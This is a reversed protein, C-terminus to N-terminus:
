EPLKWIKVTADGSATAILKEKPHFAVATITRLHAKRMLLKAGTNADWLVLEGPKKVEGGGSALKSGDPSFALGNVWATHGKIETGKEGNTNWM